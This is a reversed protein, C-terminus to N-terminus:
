NLEGKLNCLDGACRKCKEGNETCDALVDGELTTVCGRKTHGGMWTDSYRYCGSKSATAQGCSITTTLDSSTAECHDDTSSDCVACTDYALQQSNCLESSCRQCAEGTCSTGTPPDLCGRRSVQGDNSLYTFCETIGSSCQITMASEETEAQHYKCSSDVASDCQYCRLAFTPDAASLCFILIAAISFWKLNM